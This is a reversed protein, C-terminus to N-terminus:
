GFKRLGSAAIVTQMDDDDLPLSARVMQLGFLRAGVYAGQVQEAGAACATCFDEENDVGTLVVPTDVTTALQLILTLM